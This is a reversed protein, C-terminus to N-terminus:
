IEKPNYICIFNHMAYLAPIMKTQTKLSYEPAAVM